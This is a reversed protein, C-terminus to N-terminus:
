HMSDWVMQLVNISFITNILVVIAIHCVFWVVATEGTRKLISKFNRM